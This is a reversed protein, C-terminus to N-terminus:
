GPEHEPTASREIALGGQAVALLRLLLRSDAYVGRAVFTALRDPSPRSDGTGAIGNMLDLEYRAVTDAARAYVLVTDLDCRIGWGSIVELDHDLAASADSAGPTWGMADIVEAATLRGSGLPSAVQQGAAQGREANEELSQAAPLGLVASQVAGMLTAPDTTRAADVIDRVREISLGILRLTHILELRELHADGYVATTANRKEGPDLLGERLYYKITSVPTASRASLTQLKM